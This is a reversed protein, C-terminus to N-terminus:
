CECMCACEYMCLYVCAHECVCVCLEYVIACENVNKEDESTVTGIESDRSCDM